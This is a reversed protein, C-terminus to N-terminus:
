GGQADHEHEMDLKTEIRILRERNGAQGHELNSLREGVDQWSRRVLWGILSVLLLLGSQVFLEPAINM